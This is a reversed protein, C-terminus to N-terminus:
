GPMTLHQGMWARLVQESGGWMSDYIGGDEAVNPADGRFLHFVEHLLVTPNGWYVSASGLGGPCASDGIYLVAM